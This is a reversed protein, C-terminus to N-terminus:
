PILDLWAFRSDPCEASEPLEVYVVPGPRREIRTAEAPLRARVAMEWDGDTKGPAVLFSDPSVIVFV